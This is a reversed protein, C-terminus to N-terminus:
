GFSPTLLVHADGEGDPQVGIVQFMEIGVLFSDGQAPERITFDVLHVALMRRKTTVPVGDELTVHDFEEYVIAQVYEYPPAGVPWFLVTEGLARQGALQVREALSTWEIM